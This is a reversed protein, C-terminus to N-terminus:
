DLKSLAPHAIRGYVACSGLLLLAGLALIHTWVLAAATGMVLFAALRASREAEPGSVPDRKFNPM